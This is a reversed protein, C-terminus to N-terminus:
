HTVVVGGNTTVVSVTAGGRGLTTNLRRKINGQVLVPFDVRMSGNTTGTVLEASYDEPVILKVGGNTTRVDLGPGDWEHGGLTVHLGGNSTHGRVDGAVYDLHIGGNNADFTIEGNVDSISVGGNNTELRLNSYRPVMLQFSVSWNGKRRHEPGVAHITAGDTVIRIRAAAEEEDASGDWLRVRATLQIDNRDWGTVRIGGNKGGDVAIVDGDAALTTERVECYRAGSWRHERCDDDYPTVTWQQAAAPQGALLLLLCCSILAPATWTAARPVYM